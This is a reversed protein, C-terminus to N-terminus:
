GTKKRYVPLAQQGTLICLTEAEMLSSLPAANVNLGGTYTGFAPMIIRKSDVCFCARTIARRKLKLTAKPHYHGSIEGGADSSNEAIHCFSLTGKAYKRLHTGGLGIPGPDHNGEIWIWERGAQLRAIWDRAKEDLDLSAAISDFSDGLCIVRAPQLAMIERDLRLLTDHTDYPPLASGGSLAYRLAKGLHLDSVCLVRQAPWYLAGSALAHLTEGHFEVRHHTSPSM